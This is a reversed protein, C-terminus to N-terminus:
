SILIDSGPLITPPHLLGFLEILRRFRQGVNKFPMQRLEGWCLARGTRFGEMIRNSLDSPAGFRFLRRLSALGRRSEPTACLM